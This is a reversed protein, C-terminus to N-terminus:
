VRGSGWWGVEGRRESPNKPDKQTITLLTVAVEVFCLTETISHPTHAGTITSKEALSPSFRAAIEFTQPNRALEIFKRITHKYIWRRTKNKKAGRKKM